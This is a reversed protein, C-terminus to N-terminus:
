ETTPRQGKDFRGRGEFGGGHKGLFGKELGELMWDAQEQSMTGEEVATAIRERMADERLVSMADRIEEISVGAEDALDQLTKGEALAATVEDTSMDLLDAATELAEGDLSRGGSGRKGGGDTFPRDPGGDDASAVTVGFAGVVILAVMLTGAIWGFKKNM